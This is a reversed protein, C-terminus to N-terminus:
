LAVFPFISLVISQRKVLVARAPSANVAESMVAVASVEVVAFAVVSLM